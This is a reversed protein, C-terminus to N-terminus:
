SKNTGCMAKRQVGHSSLLIPHKLGEKGYESVGDMSVSLLWVTLCAAIFSALQFVRQVASGLSEHM